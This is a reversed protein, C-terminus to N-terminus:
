LTGADERTKRCEEMASARRVRISHYVRLASIAINEVDDSRLMERLSGPPRGISVLSV